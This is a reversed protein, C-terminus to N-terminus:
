SKEHGGNAAVSSTVVVGGSQSVHQVELLVFKELIQADWDVLKSDLYLEKEFKELNAQPIEVCTAGVRKQDSYLEEEVKVLLADADVLKKKSHLIM